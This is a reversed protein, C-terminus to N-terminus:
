VKERLEKIKGIEFSYHSNDLKLSETINYFFYESSDLLTNLFQQRPVVYTCYNKSEIVVIMYDYSMSKFIIKVPQDPFFTESSGKLIFDEILNLIYAWLQDIYDWLRFDLIVDDEYKLYIAGSLYDIDFKNSLQLIKDKQSIEIFYNEWKDNIEDLNSIITEPINLYSKCIFLARM